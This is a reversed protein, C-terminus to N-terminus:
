ISLSCIYKHFIILDLGSLVSFYVECQEVAILGQTQSSDVAGDHSLPSFCLPPTQKQQLKGSKRHLNNIHPKFSSGFFFFFLRIESGRSVNQETQNKQALLHASLAIHKDSCFGVSLELEPSRLFSFLLFSWSKPKRGIRQSKHKM